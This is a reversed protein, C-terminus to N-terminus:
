PKQISKALLDKYRIVEAADLQCNRRSIILHDKSILNSVYAAVQRLRTGHALRLYDTMSIDRSKYLSYYNCRLLKMRRLYASLRFKLPDRYFLVPEDSVHMKKTRAARIWLDLDEASDMESRYPYDRFFSIKGCVTPHIHTAFRRIYNRPTHEYIDNVVRMGIINDYDDIVVAKGSIMDVDPNNELFDLQSRLRNPMMIDDADMRCFYKGRAMAVQMNLSYSVGKNANNKVITIRPDSFSSVIEMTRDTSGDDTVIIEFDAFTQNLVSQISKCIFREANYAPIGVTVAPNRASDADAPLTNDTTDNM